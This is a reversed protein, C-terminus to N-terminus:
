ERSRRLYQNRKVNFLLLQYTWDGLNPCPPACFIPCFMCCFSCSGSSRQTWQCCMMFSMCWPEEILKRRPGFEASLVLGLAVSRYIYIYIYIYFIRIIVIIINNNSKNFYDCSADLYINLNKGWYDTKNLCNHVNKCKSVNVNICKASAKIWLSKCQM